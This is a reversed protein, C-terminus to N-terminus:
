EIQFKTFLVQTAIPKGTEAEMTQQIIELAKKKVERRKKGRALDAKSKSNFLLVMKDRILDENDKILQIDAKSDAAVEIRVLVYKLQNKSSLNTVFDPYLRYYSVEKVEKKEEQAWVLPTLLLSIILIVVRM